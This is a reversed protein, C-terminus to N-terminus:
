QLLHIEGRWSVNVDVWEVETAPRCPPAIDGSFVHDKAEEWSSGKFVAAATCVPSDNGSLYKVFGDNSKPVNETDAIYFSFAIGPYSLVYSSTEELYVGPYTPGFIKSYIQRFSLVSQKGLDTGKYVFRSKSMDRIEILCLRQLAGDFQLRLGNPELEVVVPYSTPDDPHHVIEM